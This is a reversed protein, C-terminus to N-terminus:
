NDNKKTLLFFLATQTTDKKFFVVIKQRCVITFDEGKGINKKEVCRQVVRLPKHLRKRNVSELRRILAQVTARKTDL